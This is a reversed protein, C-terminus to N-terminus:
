RLILQPNWEFGKETLFFNQKVSRIDEDAGGKITMGCNISAGAELDRPMMVATPLREGEATTAYGERSEIHKDSKGINTLIFYVNVNGNEKEVGAMTLEIENDTFMAGPTGKTADAPVSRFQPIPIDIFVYEFDGYYNDSSCKPSYPARGVVKFKTIRDGNLPVDVVYVPRSVPDGDSPVELRIDDMYTLLPDGGDVSTYYKGDFRNYDLFLEGIAKSGTQEFVPLIMLENGSHRIRANNVSVKMGPVGNRDNAVYVEAKSIFAGTLMVAAPM